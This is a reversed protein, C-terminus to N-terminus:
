RQVAPRDGAHDSLGLPRKRSTWGHRGSDIRDGTAGGGQPFPLNPLRISINRETGPAGNTSTARGVPAPLEPGVINSAQNNQHTTFDDSQIKPLFLQSTTEPVPQLDPPFDTAKLQQYQPDIWMGEVDVEMMGMDRHINLRSEEFDIWIGILSNQASLVSNLANILNLGQNGGQGGPAATQEVAQDYEMAAIRVAQRSTEFNTKLVQLQRWSQRIEQKITDELEMYTRRARQYNIQAVRYANREDIQDIPTTLEVGARYSSNAGRFDLPNNGTPTGINGEFRLDLVGKLNNAAIEVARRADMVAARANKLDLRRELGGKVADDLSMSFQQLGILEVRLGIQIVQLNQSIKLFAERLEALTRSALRRAELGLTDDELQKVLADLDESILRFGDNVSNLLRRDRAVDRLVRERNANSKEHFADSAIFEDVRNLDTQVLQLGNRRLMDRQASYQSTVRRLHALDPNDDDLEAWASVLDDISEEAARLRNDILQFPELLSENLTLFLDPPLGLSIKYSDLADAYARQSNQLQNQRTALQSELQAVDLTVVDTKLIQILEDVAAIFAVDNSLSRLVIEQENSMGGKWYLLKQQADYRLQGAVDPPFVLGPPLADLRESIEEPMQSALTRLLLVQESLQKINQQQNYISQRQQLLQLFDNATSTFFEKRFRALTRTAYLLNRESQTLDELVIKRGAGQFLPQVLSYSLTSATTSTNGGAFLWVTNNALEVAWQTGAPLLQSVGLSTTLALNNAGGPISTHTATASPENGGIGLYRVNFRFRDFSLDLAALYLDEIQTQYARSHIYSLEIAQFLKLNKIGPVFAGSDLVAPPGHVPISEILPSSSAAYAPDNAIEESSILQFQGDTDDDAVHKVAYSTGNGTQFSLQSLDSEREFTVNAVETAVLGFSNLWHPNEIALAEGLKHWSKYGNIGGMRHMYTHAAPDDPPLPGYDPDYPDSFRSRPDPTIDMRPVHWEPSTQKEAMLRYADDDAQDRWFARSCGCVMLMTTAISLLLVSRHVCDAVRMMYRRSLPERKVKQPTPSTFRFGGASYLAREFLSSRKVLAVARVM